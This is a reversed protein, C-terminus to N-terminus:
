DSAKNLGFRVLCYGKNWDEEKTWPNWVCSEKYFSGPGVGYCEGKELHHPGLLNRLNNILTIKIDTIGMVGFEKLLIKRDTLIVKEKGDIEIKIANTGLFDLYLMPNEGEVDIEGKLALEGAFFPFGQKEIDILTIKEKPKDIEFKGYFRRANLPLEEWEGKCKVSFEGM